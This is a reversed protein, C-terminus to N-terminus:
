AEVPQVTLDFLSLNLHEGPTNSILVYHGEELPWTVARAEHPPIGEILGVVAIDDESVPESSDRWELEDATLAVLAFDHPADTDNILQFRVHGEPAVDAQPEMEDGRFEIEFDAVENHGNM